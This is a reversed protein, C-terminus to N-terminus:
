AEVRVEAGLRAGQELALDDGSWFMGPDFYNTPCGNTWCGWPPM